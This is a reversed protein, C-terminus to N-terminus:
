RYKPSRSPSQCLTASLRWQIGSGSATKAPRGVSASAPSTRWARASATRRNASSSGTTQRKSAQRLATEFGRVSRKLSSHVPNQCAAPPIRAWLPSVSFRRRQFAAQWAAARSTSASIQPSDVSLRQKSAMLLPRWDGGGAPFGKGAVSVTGGSVRGVLRSYCDVAPFRRM